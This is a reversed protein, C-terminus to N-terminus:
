RRVEGCIGVVRVVGDMRLGDTICIISYYDLRYHYSCSYNKYISIINSRTSFEGGLFFIGVGFILTSFVEKKGLTPGRGNLFIVWHFFNFTPSM